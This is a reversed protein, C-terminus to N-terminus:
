LETASVPIEFGDRFISIEGVRVFAIDYPGTKTAAVPTGGVLMALNVSATTSSNAIVGQFDMVVGTRFDDDPPSGLNNAMNFNSIAIFFAGTPYTRTLASGVSTTGFEDDNGFDPIAKRNADHIWLDTDSQPSSQGVTTITISGGNLLPGDIEAVPMVEYSLSYDATTSAAGTVRIFLVGTLHSTYWQIFRAPTTSASSSQLTTDASGPVGAVQNLGRITITHGPTASEVILRHRYFGPTSRAPVAVRFYDLGTGAASTSNGIIVDQTSALPLGIPNAQAKTDNPETELQGSAMRPLCLFLLVLLLGSLLASRRAM